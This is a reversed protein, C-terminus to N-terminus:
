KSLYRILGVYSSVGGVVAGAVFCATLFAKEKRTHPNNLDFDFSYLDKDINMVTREYPNM